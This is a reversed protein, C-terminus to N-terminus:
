AAIWSRPGFSTTVAAGAAGLGPRVQAGLCLSVNTLPGDHASNVRSLPIPPAPAAAAMTFATPPWRPQGPADRLELFRQVGGGGRRALNLGAIQDERMELAALRGESVMVRSLEHCSRAVSRTAASLAAPLAPPHSSM